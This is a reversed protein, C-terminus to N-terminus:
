MQKINSVLEAIRMGLSVCQKGEMCVQADDVELYTRLHHNKQKLDVVWAKQDDSFEVDLDIGCVGIDPYMDTIKRCLEERTTM